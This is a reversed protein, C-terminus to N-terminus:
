SGHVLRGTDYHGDYWEVLTFFGLGMKRVNLGITRCKWPETYWDEEVILQQPDDPHVRLYGNILIVGDDRMFPLITEIARTIQRPYSELLHSFLALNAKTRMLKDNTSRPLSFIDGAVMSVRPDPSLMLRDFTEEHSAQTNDRDYESPNLTMYKVQEREKPTRPPHTDIGIGKGLTPLRTKVNFVASEVEDVSGTSDVIVTESMTRTALARLILGASAGHEHIVPPGEDHIYPSSLEQEAIVYALAKARQWRNTKLPTALGHKLMRYEPSRTHSLKGSIYEFWRDPSFSEPYGLEERVPDQAVLGQHNKFWKQSQYSRNPVREVGAFWMALRGYAPISRIAELSAQHFDGIAQEERPPAQAAASLGELLYDFRECEETGAIAHSGKM